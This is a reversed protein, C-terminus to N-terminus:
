AGINDKIINGGGIYNWNSSNCLVKNFVLINNQCSGKWEFTCSNDFICNKISSGCSGDMIVNCNVFKVNEIDCNSRIRVNSGEILLDRVSTTSDLIINKSSLITGFGSGILSKGYSSLLIMSKLLYVGKRLYTKGDPIMAFVETINSYDKEVLADVSDTRYDNGDIGIIYDEHRRTILSDIGYGKVTDCNGGNAPLFNPKNRIYNPASPDANWDACGEKIFGLLLNLAKRDNSSIHYSSKMHSALEDTTAKSALLNMLSQLTADEQLLYSIDRLKQLADPTNILKIYSENINAKLENRLDDLALSLDVSSPKDKLVSLLTETVFRHTSDTQIDRANIQPLEKLGIDLSEVKTNPKQIEPLMGKYDSSHATSSNNAHDRLADIISKVYEEVYAVTALQGNKSEGTNVDYVTSM